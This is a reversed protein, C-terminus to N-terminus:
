LDCGGASCALEQAATTLDSHEYRYLRSFDIEKPFQELLREYEEKSIEIYPLQDYKADDAPLFAMGSLRDFNDSVWKILDILENPKYTITVSANHGSWYLKNELWYNCQEIASRGKRTIAGDPSKMPFSAVYLTANDWNQGNEPNLPVGAEKLVKFLPSSANVRVNRIYYESWRAHLGSASNVLQSTNGSPKVTTVAASQNIGLAKAYEINIAVAYGSGRIKLERSQAVPSDLQGSLDVGLLREQEANRQWDPRLGPFYTALSQITGIITALEIKELLTDLTDEKRSIVSSLNCVGFAKLNQEGCPNTGINQKEEETLNLLRRTPMTDLAVQRNYFGPEGRGSKDMILFQNAIDYQTYGFPVAISNNALWRQNNHAEFGDEKCRLMYPDDYDFLSLLASRRVAGSVSAKAVMCMIDHADITRLITGQRALIRARAFDLLEKLPLPGSARGGKTLLPTGAPRIQSYDFKIDTGDVWSYLGARLATAWGETTDDIVLTTVVKSPIQRKVRPLREIYKSEVSYGVGCGSMSILLAEVFCDLDIIPLYSCNYISLNQRRAAPGAMALLRMSPMVKMELIGKRIREYDERTICAGALEHLYSVARDVTEVWTERRGLKYDFRSYKDFFQFQQLPTPFYQAANEFATKIEDPIANKDRLQSHEERYLIYAKAADYEGLTQLIREVADQVQEVDPMSYQSLNNVVATTIVSLHATSAPKGISSFCKRVAETIKTRDFAVEGGNRKIIFRPEIM